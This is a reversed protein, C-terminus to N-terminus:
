GQFATNTPIFTSDEDTCQAYKQCLQLLDSPCSTPWCSSSAVQTGWSGTHPEGCCAQGSDCDSSVRCKLGLECSHHTLEWTGDELCKSSYPDGELCVATGPCDCPVGSDPMTCSPAPHSGRRQLAEDSDSDGGSNCGVAVVFMVSWLKRYVGM